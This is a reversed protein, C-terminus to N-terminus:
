GEQLPATRTSIYSKSSTTNPQPDYVLSSLQLPLPRSEMITTKSPVDDKELDFNIHSHKLPNNKLTAKIELMISEERAQENLIHENM